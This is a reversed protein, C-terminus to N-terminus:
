ADDDHADTLANAKKKPLPAILEDHLRRLFDLTELLRHEQEGVSGPGPLGTRRYHARGSMPEIVVEHTADFWRLAREVEPTFSLVPCVTTAWGDTNM